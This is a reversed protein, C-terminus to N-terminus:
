KREISITNFSQIPLNEQFEKPFFNNACLEKEIMSMNELSKPNTKFVETVIMGILSMLSVLPISGKAVSVRFSLDAELTLPSLEHDTLSITPVGNNRAMRLGRITDMSYNAWGIALFLDEKEMLSIRDWADGIGLTLHFVGGRFFNLLLAMIMALGASTRCGFIYVNKAKNIMTVAEQFTERPIIKATNEISERDKLTIRHITDDDTHYSDHDKFTFSHVSQKFTERIERQLEAYGSFELSKAFRIVSAGSVGAKLALEETSLFCLMSYNEQVFDAVLRQTNSLSPYKKALLLQFRKIDM